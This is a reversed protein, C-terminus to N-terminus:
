LSSRESTHSSIVRFLSFCSYLLTYFAVAPQLVLLETAKYV